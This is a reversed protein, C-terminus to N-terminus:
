LEDDDGISMRKAIFQFVTATVILTLLASTVLTVILIPGYEALLEGQQVIGVAAPVFLLSLNRLIAGGTAEMNADPGGRWLLLLFFLAMGVVPGPFSLFPFFQNAVTVIAEGALQCGLLMTVAQIVNVPPASAPQAM